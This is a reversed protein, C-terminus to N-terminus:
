KAKGTLLVEFSEQENGDLPHVIVTKLIGYRGDDLMIKKDGGFKFVFNDAGYIAIVLKEIAADSVKRDELNCKNCYESYGEADISEDGKMDISVDSGDSVEVYLEYDIKHAGFPSNEPVTVQLAVLTIEEEALPDPAPVSYQEHKVNNNKGSSSCGALVSALMLMALVLASIRLKM